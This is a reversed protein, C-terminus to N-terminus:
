GAQSSRRTAKRSRVVCVPGARARHAAAEIEAGTRREADTDERASLRPM